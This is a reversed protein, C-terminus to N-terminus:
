GVKKHSYRKKPPMLLPILSIRVDEVEEISNVLPIIKNMHDPPLLNGAYSVCDQFRENHEEETLPKEPFGPAIDLSKYYASGDETVVCMELATNHGRKEMTPDANVHIKEILEMIKPDRIHSEDFHKLKSSRRLLANAVCYQISFQANVKPNEGIKFPHGVIKYIYPVVKVDIRSVNEPVLGKEKVLSLMADTSGLTGGCSPYKKFLVKTIEFRKGMEGVVKEPAYADKAFLHFYGYVGELFNQPGTLGRQALQACLIGAQSVFGQILRVALSGDINSQFSGGSRNFALALANLMQKSNLRLMRGAIAATAFVTCVGTPDFGDYTTRPLNLRAAVESGVVLATIFDKGSCGGLREAMALATPVSSAGIHIGPSLADCFDLARAMVSNVFAANYAPVRGGHILISAEEQGGWEKIQNVLAECGEAKAGAIATGLVTLIVKRVVEIPEKPLDEYQTDSAYQALIKEIEM